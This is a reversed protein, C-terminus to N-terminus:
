NRLRQRSLFNAEILLIQRQYLFYSRLVTLILNRKSAKPSKILPMPIQHLLHIVNCKLYTSVFETKGEGRVLDKLILFCYGNGNIEM